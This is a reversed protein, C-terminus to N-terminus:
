CAGIELVVVKLDATHLGAPQLVMDSCVVGFYQALRAINVIDCSVPRNLTRLGRSTPIRASKREQARVRKVLESVDFPWWVRPLRPSLLVPMGWGDDAMFRDFEAAPAGTEVEVPWVLDM